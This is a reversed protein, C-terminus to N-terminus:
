LPLRQSPTLGGPGAVSGSATRAAGWAMGVTKHRCGQRSGERVRRQTPHTSVGGGLPGSAPPVQAPFCDPAELVKNLKESFYLIQFSVICVGTIQSCAGTEQSLASPRPDTQRDPSLPPPRDTQVSLPPRDTQRLLPPRDTQRVSQPTPTQRDPSLTPTQRDIQVSPHPIPRGPSPQGKHRSGSVSRRRAPSRRGCVPQM